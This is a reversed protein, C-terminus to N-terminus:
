IALSPPSLFSSRRLPLEPIVPRARPSEESIVEPTIVAGSPRPSLNILLVLVGRDQDLVGPVVILAVAQSVPDGVYLFMQLEDLIM